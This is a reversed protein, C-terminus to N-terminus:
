RPNLQLGSQISEQPLQLLRRKDDPGLVDSGGTLYTHTVPIKLRLIDFWRLGEHIYSVKKFFLTAKLLSGATDTTGPAYFAIAKAATINHTAASYSRVNKSEWTVLDAIAATYNKQAIYAEARNFLVEEMSFLPIVDYNAANEYFKPVNYYQPSSGYTWYPISLTGGSVNANLYFESFLNNGYGYRYYAYSSGWVTNAEQLLINSNETAKTYIAQLGFFGLSTASYGVPSSTASTGNWNRILSAVPTTGFTQAAHSIVQDYDKKFLYFRAAFAHAAQKSFHFKPADGYIKENILPLGRNLDAEINDYVSKVTGRSYKVTAHKEVATVYPIGPDTAATAPDYAKAFLTVLMFHAYARAVLAEGKQANYNASDPGNCYELAQNAAAIANYCAHFYGEPSDQDQFQVDQFKFSQANVANSNPDAYLTANGKDEANDSMAECFPIYNRKPYASVLLQTVQEPTTIVTRNDPLTELFKKCGACLIIILFINIYLLKRKM